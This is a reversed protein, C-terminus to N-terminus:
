VPIGAMPPDLESNIRTEYGQESPKEVPEKIKGVAMYVLMESEIVSCETVLDSSSAYIFNNPLNIWSAGRFSSKILFVTFVLTTVYRMFINTSVYFIIPTVCYGTPGATLSSWLHNRCNLKQPTALSAPKGKECYEGIFNKNCVCKFTNEKYNPVCTGRNHCPSSSCSPQLLIM